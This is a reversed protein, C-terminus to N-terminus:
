IEFHKADPHYRWVMQGKWEILKETAPCKVKGTTTSGSVGYLWGDPGWELSNMVSHTDELGFGSLRVEPNSDPVDNQDKDPYFLLYPPNAVWIGGHGTVVSTSVNLGSIVDKSQDFFGDGNTDEYVTIKDAGRTGQPPPKPVADFRARLHNDYEVIKLGAPFQYQLYQSVWLRGRSDWSMFLPQRVGPESAMLDISFGERMKFEGVAKKAPTPPTDDALTGRGGFTRIVESVQDSGAEPSPSEKPSQQGNTMCGVSALLLM